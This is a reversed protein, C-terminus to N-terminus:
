CNTWTCKDKYMSVQMYREDQEEESIDDPFDIPCVLPSGGDGSCTGSNYGRFCTFSSHLNDVQDSYEEKCTEPKVSSMSTMKLISSWEGEDGLIYHISCSNIRSRM